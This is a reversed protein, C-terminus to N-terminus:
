HLIRLNSVLLVVWLLLFFFPNNVSSRSNLVPQNTVRTLVLFTCYLLACKLAWQVNVSAWSPAARLQPAHGHHFTSVAARPETNQGGRSNLTFAEVSCALWTKWSLTKADAKWTWPHASSRANPWCMLTFAASMTLYRCGICALTSPTGLINICEIDGIPLTELIVMSHLLGSM